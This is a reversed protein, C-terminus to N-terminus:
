AVNLDNKEPDIDLGIMYHGKFGMTNGNLIYKIRTEKKEGPV